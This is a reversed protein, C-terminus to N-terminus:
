IWGQMATMVFVDYLM